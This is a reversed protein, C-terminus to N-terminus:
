SLVSAAPTNVEVLVDRRAVLANTLSLEVSNSEMVACFISFSSNNSPTSVRTLAMVSCSANARVAAADTLGTRHNYTITIM